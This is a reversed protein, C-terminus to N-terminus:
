EDTLSVNKMEELSLLAILQFLHGAALLPVKAEASLPRPASALSKPIGAVTSKEVTFTTRASQSSAVCAGATTTAEVLKGRIHDITIEKYIM